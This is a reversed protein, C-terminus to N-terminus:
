LEYDFLDGRIQVALRDKLPDYSMKLVEADHYNLIQVQFWNGSALPCGSHDFITIKTKDSVQNFNICDLVDTM